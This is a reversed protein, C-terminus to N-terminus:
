RCRVIKRGSSWATRRYGTPATPASTSAQRRCGARSRFASRRTMTSRSGRPSTSWRGCIPAWHVTVRDTCDWCDPQPTMSRTLVPRTRKPSGSATSSGPKGDGVRRTRIRWAAPKSAGDAPLYVTPRESYVTLGNATSCGVLKEGHELTPAAGARVARPRGVAKDGRALQLARQGALDVVAALWGTSGVPARPEEVLRIPEDLVRDVLAADKPYLVIAEGANLACHRALHTGDEISFVLLPDAKDVAALSLEAASPEHWLLIERSAVPVPVLTPPQVHLGNGM